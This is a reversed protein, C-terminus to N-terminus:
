GGGAVRTHKNVAGFIEQAAKLIGALMAIMAAATKILAEQTGAVFVAGILLVLFFIWRFGQWGLGAEAMEWQRVQAAAASRRVFREFAPNMLSLNPRLTLLGKSLLRSVTEHQHPNALGEEAVQVLTLREERSCYDWLAGFSSQPIEAGEGSDVPGASRGGPDAEAGATGSELVDCLSLAFGDLLARWRGRQVEEPIPLAAVRENFREGIYTDTGLPLLDRPDARSLVIMRRNSKWGLELTELVGTQLLAKELDPVLVGEAFPLVAKHLDRNVQPSGGVSGAMAAAQAQWMRRVYSVVQARERESRVLFLIRRERRLVDAATERQAEPALEQVFLSWVAYRVAALMMGALLILGAIGTWGPWHFAGQADVYGAFEQGGETPAAADRNQHRLWVSPENYLPLQRDIFALADFKRERDTLVAKYAELQKAREALYSFRDDVRLSRAREADRAIWDRVHREGRSREYTDLKRLEVRWSYASIGIAPVASVLLALMVGAAVYWRPEVLPPGPGDSKSYRQHYWVIAILFPLIPFLLWFPLLRDSRITALVLLCLLFLGTYVLTLERYLRANKEAPWLLALGRKRAIMLVLGVVVPISLPVLGYVVSRVLAESNVTGMVRQDRFTVIHWGADPIARFPTVYMEHKRRLYATKLRDSSKALVIAELAEPDGIEEYLDGKLVRRKDSHFLIHGDGTIVAFGYGAPLLPDDVFLPEASMVSVVPFGCKDSLRSHIAVAVFVGGTSFSRFSQVFVPPGGAFSWMRRAAPELFYPRRSVDQRRSYGHVTGKLFQMGDADIWSVQSFHRYEPPPKKELLHEQDKLGGCDQQQQVEGSAVQDYSSLQNRLSKLEGALRNELKGALNELGSSALSTLYLHSAWSGLLLTLALLSVAGSPVLLSADTLRFRENATILLLKLWPQAAVAVVLLLFLLLTWQPSILLAEQWMRDPDSLGAVIWITEGTECTNKETIRLQPVRIPHYYLQFQREGLQIPISGSAAALRQQAKEPADPSVLVALDTLRAVPYDKSPDDKERAQREVWGLQGRLSSSAGHELQVRVKGRSDAILLYEFAAQSVPIDSFNTGPSTEIQLMEGSSVFRPLAIKEPSTFGPRKDRCSPEPNEAVVPDDGPWVVYPNRRAFERLPLEWKVRDLEEQTRPLGKDVTDRVTELVVTLDRGAHAIERRNQHELEARQSYIWWGFVAAGALVAFLSWAISPLVRRM